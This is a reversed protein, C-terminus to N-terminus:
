FEPQVTFTKQNLYNLKGELAFSLGTASLMLRKARHAKNFARDGYQDDGLLPHGIFAMHARIQHTRGTHLTVALRACEGAELVTYETVITQAGREEHPLIRVRAHQADKRLYARLVCHAPTPTGRVVCTYEKHVQRKRFATELAEQAAANRALLFLGDTQNDLRHCLVPELAGPESALLAELALGTITKGGKADRECSVGAPKVVVMVNEDLYLTKILPRAAIERAYVKIEAGPVIRADRGVRTGNVKVDRKEFAERVAFEPLEPLMRRVYGLLRGAQADAPVFFTYLKM